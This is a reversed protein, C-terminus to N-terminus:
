ATRPPSGVSVVTRSLPVQHRWALRWRRDSRVFLWMERGAEDYTTGDYEYTMDFRYTAMATDEWVDIQMESERFAHVRANRIFTQFSDIVARLGQFRAEFGPAIMVVDNLLHENLRAVRGGLWLANIQRIADHVEVADRPPADRTARKPERPSRM